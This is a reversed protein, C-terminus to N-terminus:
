RSFISDKTIEQVSTCGCLKMTLEFDKRLLDLIRKAGAQGDVALGWIIPRGVAVAKAGLAIAKFVDTGRRIGGDVLVEIKGDVAEVIAPLADITAPVTDLQRAGHNSVIVGAAGHDIALRADDPHMVGKLLVPINSRACLWDIDKWSFTPDFQWAVYAALGSEGKTKPMQEMGAPMLNKISLDKPLRFRNKIDRERRGWVQADVTVAIATCGQSEARQVLSLTADRDKYVYLQFWVPGTAEPLVEEFSSNSLTSFIMITNAQGAARVTAVEGEPHAMRHFATPAVLIPMAIEQGLIRTCLDPKSIDILVRPHLQIREYAAHNERLTIEDNAGSRYYDYATKSLKERAAAEYDFVNVLDRKDVM